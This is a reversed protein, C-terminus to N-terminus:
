ILEDIYSILDNNSFFQSFLKINSDNDVQLTILIRKNGDLLRNVKILNM